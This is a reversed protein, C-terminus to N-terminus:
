KVELVGMMGHDEHDLIHCHFMWMGPYEDYRVVFRARQHRPVNVVDKWARYPEPVGNREIVQFQFGHLHFPHDMGVLNEVDWIETAGVRASFDVRDMDFHRGNLLHQTMVVLRHASVNTTDLAPVARLRQPIRVLPVPAATSYSLTLLDRTSEWDRPRLQRIYRDYPLAQLMASSGPAGVGRVLLEVREAPAITIENVERPHEFLGGDSGVHLLAHGELALRYIRAASANIVRWRQVEGARIPVVPKLQGNVFLLDGERGNEADVRGQHSHPEALDIRGDALLRNDSLILVREPLTAPLPDDAARVILAGYLGRGVQQGTRHHPHPHYWYTGSTGKRVTFEYNRTEGPPVPHMPSGDAAFPLHMGHWHVTTEEPLDNRFRVIVRDGERVELTPGPISGNYAYVDSEVGPVLSMRTPAARLHVVVTGRRRTQNDLKPLIRLTDGAVAVSADRGRERDTAAHAGMCSATAVLVGMAITRHM